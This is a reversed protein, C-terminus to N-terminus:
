LFKLKEIQHNNGINKPLAIDTKIKEQILSKIKNNFWPPYKDNCVILEHPIFDSDINLVTENFTLVKGDVKINGFTREWNLQNIEIRTLNDRSDKYHWFERTHPPPYYIKLSSKIHIIQHFCKPHLSHHTGSDVTM